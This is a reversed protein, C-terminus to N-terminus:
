STKAANSRPIESEDEGDELARNFLRLPPSAIWEIFDLGLRALGRASLGSTTPVYGLQSMLARNLYELAEIEAAPVETRWAETREATVPRLTNGHKAMRSKPVLGKAANEAYFELMRQRFPVGLFECVKTLTAETETVLDEYRITLFQSNRDHKNIERIATQWKQTARVIKALPRKGQKVAVNKMSLYVARVDRLLHIIRANPFVSLLTPLHARYAPNKDGWIKADPWTRELYARYVADVGDRYSSTGANILKERLADKPIGWDPFKKDKYLQDIFEDLDKQGFPERRGFRDFLKVLFKSEPPICLDPHATLLLRLLTSGSRPSSVIFFPAQVCM